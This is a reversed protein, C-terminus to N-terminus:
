MRWSSPSSSRTWSSRPVTWPTRTTWSAMRQRERSRTRQRERSRTRTSWLTGKKANDKMVNLMTPIWQKVADSDIHQGNMRMMQAFFMIKPAASPLLENVFFPWVRKETVAKFRDDSLVMAQLTETLGIEFNSEQVAEFTNVLLESLLAVSLDDSLFAVVDEPAPPPPGHQHHRPGHFPGHFGRPGHHGRHHGRGRHGRGRHHHGRSRGFGRGRCGGRGRRRVGRGRCGHEDAKGTVAEVEQKEEMEVNARQMDANWKYGFHHPPPPGHPHGHPPHDFYGNMPLGHPPFGHGHPPPPHHDFHGGFHGFGDSYSANETGVTSSIPNSETPGQVQDVAILGEQDVNCIRLKLSKRNGRQAMAFADKLDQQTSITSDSGNEDEFTVAFQNGDEFGFSKCVYVVLDDYLPDGCEENESEYKWLRMDVGYSVKIKMKTFRFLDCDSRYCDPNLIVFDEKSLLCLLILRRSAVSSM